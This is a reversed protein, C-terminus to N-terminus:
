MCKQSWQQYTFMLVGLSFCCSHALRHPNGDLLGPHELSWTSSWWRHHSKHRCLLVWQARAWLSWSQLFCMLDPTCGHAHQQNERVNMSSQVMFEDGVIQTDISLVLPINQTYQLPVNLAFLEFQTVTSVPSELMIVCSSVDCWLCCLWRVWSYIAM